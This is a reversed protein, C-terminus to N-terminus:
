PLHVTVEKKYQDMLFMEAKQGDVQFTLINKQDQFLECLIDLRVTMDSGSQVGVGEIYVWMAMQDDGPEKGLYNLEVEKGSASISFHSSLYEAVHGDAGQVEIETGLHIATDRYLRIAEEVDDAFLHQTIELSSTETRYVIETRSLHFEHEVPFVTACIFLLLFTM